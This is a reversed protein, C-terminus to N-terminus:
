TEPEVRSRRVRLGTRNILTAYVKGTTGIHASREALRTRLRRAQRADKSLFYAFGGGGAGALGAALWQRRTTAFLDEIGPTTSGAYLDKKIQWYRNIQGAAAPWDARLLAERLDAASQKLDKMMEVVAPERALWRGMVQRLIDRALRQQGTYYVVLREELGRLTAEPLRLVEVKPRQPIGPASVVSKVGPAVGGVQDQWGGGTSLRQELLLTQDILSSRSLRQGAAVHLAALMTAALISSTGLGSGKPVRAETVVRLGGGSRRLHKALESSDDPVIGAIRLAVKHLAFPDRVDVAGVTADEDLRTEQGLDRSELIVVPEPLVDVTVSLPPRGDLDIATNIVHGGREYCYPPTDSWGGALDLRAPAQATVRLGPQLDLRARRAFAGSGAAVLESAVAIRRFAWNMATQARGGASLDPHLMGSLTHAVEWTARPPHSPRRLLQAVTWLIRAYDVNGQAGWTRAQGKNILWLEAEGYAAHTRYHSLMPEAPRDDHRWVHELVRQAQMRAAAAERMGSLALPDAAELIESMSYRTQRLWRSREDVDMPPEQVASMAIFSVDRGGTAPFLRANWLTRQKAPIDKWVAHPRIRHRAFWQGIPRNLYTCRRDVWRGKFDDDVGCIVDVFRIAGDECRVPMAFLVLDAPLDVRGYHEVAQSLVCGRGIRCGGTLMCNEAVSGAGLVGRRSGRALVTQYTRADPPVDWEHASLLDNQLLSAAPSPNNGTLTDRFQRTTGLHLFDGRVELLNFPVGHLVRWLRRRVGTEFESADSGSALAGTIDAYLDVEARPDIGRALSHLARTRQADFFLLGTDIMVRGVRNTAGAAGMQNVTAKQLTHVIRGGADTVFVGHGRGLEAPVRMSIATVSAPPARVDRHNFALFVDGAVVLMGPGLRPPLGALTVYLHDFLTALQGDPRLLPLPMFIKGAASYMPLRQSLGGSHILLIRFRHFDSPKLKFRRVLSRMVGLTAGGSGIRAGPPDPVVLTRQAKPFFDGRLALEHRYVEAQKANAATLVLYDWCSNAGGLAQRYADANAELADRLFRTTM